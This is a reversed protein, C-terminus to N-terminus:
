HAYPLKTGIEPYSLFNLNISMHEICRQQPTSSKGACKKKLM